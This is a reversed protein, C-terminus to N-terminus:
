DFHLGAVTKTISSYSCRQYGLKNDFLFFKNQPQLKAWYRDCVYTNYDRTLLMRDYGEQFCQLIAGCTERKLFYGATTTCEQYSLRLLDDYPKTEHFKSAALLCVDYDYGREFFTQISTQVAKVNSTFMFDDELVLCHHREDPTEVFHRVVDLHNRTAGLYADVTENGTV